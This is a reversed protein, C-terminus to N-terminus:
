GIIGFKWLRIRFLIFLIFLRLRLKLELLELWLRLRLSPLDRQWPLRPRRGGNQTLLM